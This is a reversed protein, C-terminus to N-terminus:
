NIEFSVTIGQTYKLEDANAATVENEPRELFASPMATRNQGYGGMAYAFVDSSPDSVNPSAYAGRLKGVQRGTSAALRQVNKVAAEYARKTTEAADKDSVTGIFEIKVEPTGSDSEYYGGQEEMMAKMEDMQEQQKASLEAVNKKGLLDRQEVQANLSSPLLALADADKTPLSWEVRVACSATVIKPLTEPNITRGGRGMSRMMRIMQAQQPNKDSPDGIRAGSFQISQEDAKMATLEEKVRVKHDALAKIASKSDLGQASAWFTLRLKQPEVVVDAKGFASLGNPEMPAYQACVISSHSVVALMLATWLVHRALM